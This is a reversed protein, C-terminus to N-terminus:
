KDRGGDTPDIVAFRDRVTGDPNFAVVLWGPQLGDRKFRWSWSPGGLYTIDHAPRGLLNRVDAMTSKGPVLKALQDESLLQSVDKVRGDAGIRVRHTEVGEPGTTYDWLKDGNPEARTDTPTGLRARVDAETSQGSVLSGPGACGSLLAACFLMTLTTALKM